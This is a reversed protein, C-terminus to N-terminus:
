ASLLTVFLSLGLLMYGFASPVLGLAALDLKLNESIGATISSLVYNYGAMFALASVAAIIISSSLKGGLIALRDIPCTLLTELTKEEKEMAVSTAALQVASM